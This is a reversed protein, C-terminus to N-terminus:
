TFNILMEAVEQDAPLLDYQLLRETEVWALANHVILDLKGSIIKVFYTKLLIEGNDHKFVVDCFHDTVQINLCLEEQIERVLCQEPTEDAELKGGPFEWKLPLIADKGRQCLLYKGERCLLAATVIQM